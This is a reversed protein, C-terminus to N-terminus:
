RRRRAVCAVGGIAYLILSSPEPVIATIFGVDEFWFPMSPILPGDFELSYGTFYDGGPAALGFFTDGTGTPGSIASSSSVSGGSALHGTFTVNGYDRNTLSLGTLGLSVVQEDPEAGVFDTFGITVKRSFQTIIFGWTGSLPMPPTGTAYNSELPEYRMVKSLSTGYCREYSWTNAIVGGRDQDFAEAIDEIFQASSFASDLADLDITNTAIVNEDYDRHTRGGAAAM